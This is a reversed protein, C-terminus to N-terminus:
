KECFFHLHKISKNEKYVPEPLSTWINSYYEGSECSEMNLHTLYSVIFIDHANKLYENTNKKRFVYNSFSYRAWHYFGHLTNPLIKKIDRALLKYSWQIDTKRLKFDIGKIKCLIKVSSIIKKNELYCILSTIGKEDIINNLSLIKIIDFIEKNKLPNSENISNGYYIIELDSYNQIKKYINKTVQDRVDLYEKRYFDGNEEIIKSLYINKEGNIGYYNWYISQTSEYSSNIGKNEILNFKM